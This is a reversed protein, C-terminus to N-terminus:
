GRTKLADAYADQTQRTLADWSFSRAYQTAKMKAKQPYGKNKLRALVRVADKEDAATFCYKTVEPDLKSMKYILVPLGRAQADLIPLSSGEERAPYYFLDFSDYIKILEDEKAYGMFSVNDLGDKEKQRTLRKLDPGSGYITFHYGSNAKLEAATKLIFGINKRHSIAGVYGVNFQVKAKKKPILLERFHDKPGLMIVRWEKSIRFRKLARREVSSSSFILYDSYTIADKISSAVVANYAHQLPGKNFGPDMRMLDHITTVIRAKSGAKKLLRAAFGMEQNTIHIIDFDKKALKAIEGKFLSFTYILGSMDNRRSRKLPAIAVIKNKKSLHRYLQYTYETMGDGSGPQPKISNVLAIKM